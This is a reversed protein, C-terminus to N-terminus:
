TSRRRLIETAVPDNEYWNCSIGSDLPGTIRHKCVYRKMCVECETRTM